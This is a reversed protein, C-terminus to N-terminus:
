NGERLDRWSLMWVPFSETQNKVASSCYVINANGGVVDADVSGGSLMGGTLQKGGGGTYKVSGTVIIVGHWSFGGHAEFDGEVLLIGCGSSDGTLKIDTGNTNYYVINHVGCTSPSELNAGLTPLGWNMGTHTASSVNYSYNALKKLSNVTADIDLNVGNYTINPTTGGAGTINPGGSIEISGPNNTTVIGPKDSGGCMDIGIIDTSSGQIKTNAKVYLPSPVTIPPIKAMEAEVTRYSNTTYGSSTVLYINGNNSNGVATNRTIIGDNDHDGWYMINGAADTKHRIEVVYNIDSQLSNTRSHTVKSSDFGLKQAMALTGIYARWQTSTEYDDDIRNAGATARLRARAEEVGAEAAYFALESVKYNGGIQIDTSTMVVAATGLLTLVAMLLLAVATVMGRENEYLSTGNSSSSLLKEFINKNCSCRARSNSWLRAM